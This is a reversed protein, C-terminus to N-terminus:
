LCYYYFIYCFFFRLACRQACFFFIQYAKPHLYMYKRQLQLVNRFTLIPLLLALAASRAFLQCNRKKAAGGQFLATYKLAFSFPCKSINFHTIFFLTWLIFYVIHKIKASCFPYKLINKDVPYFIIPVDFSGQAEAAVYCIAFGFYKYM